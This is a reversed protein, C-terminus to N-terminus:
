PSGNIAFLIRASYTMLYSYHELLSSGLSACSIETNAATPFNASFKQRGFSVVRTVKLASFKPAGRAGTRRLGRALEALGARGWARMGGCGAAGGAEEGARSMGGLGRARLRWGGEGGAQADEGASARLSRALWSLRCSACGAGGTGRAEYCWCGARGLWCRGSRAVGAGGSSSM